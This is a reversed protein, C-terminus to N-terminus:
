GETRRPGTPTEGMRGHDVAWRIAELHCRTLTQKGWDDSGSARRALDQDKQEPTLADSPKKNFM